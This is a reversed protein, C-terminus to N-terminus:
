KLSQTDIVVPWKGIPCDENLMRAKANTFCGCIRCRLGTHHECTACVHLREQATEPAATKMGSGIFKAMAKGASLAMRLIGPGGGPQLGVQATTSSANISGGYTFASQSGQRVAEALGPLTSIEGSRYRRLHEAFWTSKPSRMNQYVDVAAQGVVLARDPQGLDAYQICESWLLKAEQQRDGLERTLQLAHEFCLLANNPDGMGSYAYGYHELAIKIAFRDNLARASALEQEFATVARAPQGFALLALGLNGLIDAERPQDGLQRTLALAHELLEVAREANGEDRQIIGLDTLAVAELHQNSAKRAAALAQEGTEISSQATPSFETDPQSGLPRQDKVGYVVFLNKALCTIRESAPWRLKVESEDLRLVKDTAWVLLLDTRRGSVEAATEGSPLTWQHAVGGGRLREFLKRVPGQVHQRAGISVAPISCVGGVIAVDARAVSSIREWHQFSKARDGCLWLVLRSNDPTSERLVNPCLEQIQLDSLQM